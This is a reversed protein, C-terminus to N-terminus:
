AVQAEDSVSLEKSQFLLVLAASTARGSPEQTESLRVAKVFAVIEPM